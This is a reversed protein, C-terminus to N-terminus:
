DQKETTIPTESKWLVSTAVDSWVPSQEDITLKQCIRLADLYESTGPPRIDKVKAQTRLKEVEGAIKAHLASGEDGYRRNAIGVLWEPDPERLRLTLCRRLFARPLEREGNTTLILLIESGPRLAIADNTEKVTFTKVDFPDLLDNPVDPDAKDIEDILVVAHPERAEPSPDTAQARADLPSNGRQRASNADFAWWLVEPEIYHQKSRLDTGLTYADNLRQLVDFSYMLDSAQTRSTVVKKYFRWDLVAAVNKALTSKGSGPEGSILLPRGTALALNLALIMRPEYVYLDEPAGGAPRYSVNGHADTVSHIQDAAPDFFRKEYTM